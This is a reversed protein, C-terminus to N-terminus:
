DLEMLSGTMMVSVLASAYSDTHIPMPMPSGLEPEISPALMTVASNGYM